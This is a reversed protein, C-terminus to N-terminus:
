RSLEVRYDKQEKTVTVTIGSKAVSTYRDPIPRNKLGAYYKAQEAQAGASMGRAGEPPPADTVVVRNECACAGPQGKCTLRFRGQEDTTGDAIYEAGLGQAMPVFQVRAAPLPQGNLLVVGEVPVIAPPSNPCGCLLFAAACAATARLTSRTM